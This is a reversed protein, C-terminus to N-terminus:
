SNEPNSIQVAAYAHEKCFGRRLLFEIAKRKQLFDPTVESSFRKKVIETAIKLWSDELGHLAQEIAIEPLQHTNLEARIRVPGHGANARYRVLSDAFRSDDQFGQRSLTDLAADVDKAAAGKASLKRKLELRSHDRRVLLSLAKKYADPPPQNKGAADVSARSRQFRQNM